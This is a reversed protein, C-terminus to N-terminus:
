RGGWEDRNNAFVAVSSIRDNWNKSPNDSVPVRRLDNISRDIFLNVGRFNSDNFIRIRSRGFVRISTIKDNFGGPMSPWREGEKLCFYDGRFNEAQYFCAGSKPARPRGWQWQAFAPLSTVFLLLIFMSVFRLRMPKRGILVILIKKLAYPQIRFPNWFQGTLSSARAYTGFRLSSV